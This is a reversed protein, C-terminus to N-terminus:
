EEFKIEIEEHICNQDTVTTKLYKFKSMNKFSKVSTLLLVRSKRTKNLDTNNVATEFAKLFSYLLKKRREHGEKKEKRL